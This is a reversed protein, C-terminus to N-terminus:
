EGEWSDARNVLRGTGLGEVLCKEIFEFLCYNQLAFLRERVEVGAGETVGSGGLFIKVKGAGGVISYFRMKYYIGQEM